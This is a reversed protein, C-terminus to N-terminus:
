LVKISPESVVMALVILKVTTIVHMLWNIEPGLNRSARAATDKSRSTM